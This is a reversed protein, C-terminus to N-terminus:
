DRRAVHTSAGASLADLSILKRALQSEIVGIVTGSVYLYAPFHRESALLRRGTADLAAVVTRHAGRTLHVRVSALTVTV